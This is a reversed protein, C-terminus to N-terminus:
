VHARGIQNAAGPATSRGGTDRTYRRDKVDGLFREVAPKDVDAVRASGLGPKVHAVILKRDEEVSAPEKHRPAWESLYRDCLEAVTPANRADAWQQSPDEGRAIKEKLDKALERARALSMEPFNGLKPRRETGARTRYWLHWVRGTPRVRLQLGSVEHDRLVAPAPTDRATAPTLKVATM